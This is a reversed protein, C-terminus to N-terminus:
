LVTVLFVLTSMLATGHNDLWIRPECRWRRLLPLACVPRASVPKGPVIRGVHTTELLLVNGDAQNTM